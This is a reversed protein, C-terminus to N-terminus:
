TVNKGLFVRLFFYFVAVVIICEKCFVHSLWICAISFTLCFFANGLFDKPLNVWLYKLLFTPNM